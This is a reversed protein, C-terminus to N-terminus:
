GIGFADDPICHKDIIIIRLQCSEIFFLLVEDLFEPREDIMDIYSVKGFFQFLSLVM